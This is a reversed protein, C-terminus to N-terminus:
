SRRARLRLVYEATSRMTPSSSAVTIAVVYTGSAPVRWSVTQAPGFSAPPRRAYRVAIGDAPRLSRLRIREGLRVAVLPVVGRAFPFGDAHVTNASGDPSLTTTTSWAFATEHTGRATEVVLPGKAPEAGAPAVMAALLAIMFTSASAGSMTCM